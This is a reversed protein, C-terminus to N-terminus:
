PCPWWGPLSGTGAPASPCSDPGLDKHFCSAPASTQFPGPVSACAPGSRPRAASMEGTRLGARDARCLELLAEPPFPAPPPGLGFQRVGPPRRPWPRGEPQRLWSSETPGVGLRGECPAGGAVCRWCGSGLTEADASRCGCWKEAGLWSAGAALEGPWSKARFLGGAFMVVNRPCAVWIRARQLAFRWPQRGRELRGEPALRSVGSSCLGEPVAV